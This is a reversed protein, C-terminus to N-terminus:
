VSARLRRLEVRAEPAYLSGPFAQLLADWREAAGAPDGLDHELAQAQLRLARDRFFSLPFQEALDDLAAVAPGAEGSARLVSARLYLSEDGLAHGAPLAADLTDLTALAAEPLDRRHLLAARAYVHLPDGSLDDDPGPPNDQDLTESLTVRLAIADNAADAATNEDQAEARALASFMFGEYFDVLALEYRAQEALTGIRLTADVDAFRDRAAELDGRRLAVEGLALRARAAVEPNRTSAARELLAEAEDFERYVDRLLTALAFAASASAPSGANERLFTEYGARAADAAPTAGRATAERGARAQQDWLRARALRAPPATPADPYRELIEDLAGGAAETAGAAAAEDAFALLIQGQENELRDLARVAGLAADYDKQELALWAALERYARNLPDLTIAREIAAAFIAPADQGDLLRTLRARVGPAHDPQTALLRLYADIAAAYELGLGYLHARELLFLTDDGLAERGADLVDAAEAYLRLGGVANAVTRYAQENSPDLAVAEDWARQAADTQGTRYREVGLDALLAVSTGEREIREEVLRVADDFRRATEYAEKLKLWVPVSTPDALYADELLPIAEEPRGNGLLQAGLLFETSAARDEEGLLPPAAPAPPQAALPGALLVLAFLLRRM